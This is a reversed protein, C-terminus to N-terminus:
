GLRDGPRVSPHNDPRILIVPGAGSESYVGLTLAESKFGAIRRPPFNVVALVLRGVLDGPAYADTIQASSTRMGLDPGCDLTLRYAPNRAGELPNAELVRAVRIDLSEFDSVSAHPDDHM